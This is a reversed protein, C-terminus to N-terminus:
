TLVPIEIGGLVGTHTCSPELAITLLWLAARVRANLGDSWGSYIFVRTSPIDSVCFRELKVGNTLIVMDFFCWWAVM